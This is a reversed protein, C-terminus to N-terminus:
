KLEQLPFIETTISSGEAFGLATQSDAQERVGLILIAGPPGRRDPDLSWSHIIAVDAKMGRLAALKKDLLKGSEARDAAPDARWIVLRPEAQRPSDKWNEYAFLHYLGSYTLVGVLLVIEVILDTCRTAISNKVLFWIILSVITAGLSVFSWQNRRVRRVIVAGGFVLVFAFAFNALKPKANPGPGINVATLLLHVYLGALM